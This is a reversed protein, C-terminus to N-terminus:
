QVVLRIRPQMLHADLREQDLGRHHVQTSYKSRYSVMCSVNNPNAGLICNVKFQIVLSLTDYNFHHTNFYLDALSNFIVRITDAFKLSLDVGDKNARKEPWIYSVDHDFIPLNLFVGDLILFRVASQVM